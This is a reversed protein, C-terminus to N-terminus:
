EKNLFMYLVRKKKLYKCCKVFENSDKKVCKIIFLFNDM